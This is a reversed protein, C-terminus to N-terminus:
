VGAEEAVFRGMRGPPDALLSELRRAVTHDRLLRARGAAAIRRREDPHQLYWAVKEHLERPTRWSILEEGLAFLDGLEENHHALVFGGCSVVDFVRLTVIDLQYIRGIDVHIGDGSYIRPLKHFHGAPGRWRAGHATVARWGEDGWVHAGYRGLGAVTALRFEAAAAEGLLMVPDAFRAGPTPKLAALEPLHEAMLEPIRFVGASRRQEALVREVLAAADAPDRGARVALTTADRKYQQAEPVMSRGVFVVPADVDAHEEATLAIPRRWEPDAALPLHEARFGAARYLPVHAKRWTHITTRPVPRKPPRVPDISPDIEWVVLRLGPLHAGLEEVAEPLGPQHNVAVILEPRFSRAIRTLEAPPLRTTEWTWLGYGADTLARTLEEVVLGGDVILARRNPLITRWLLERAYRQGLVPHVVTPLQPINVLELDLFVQLQGSRLWASWDTGELFLRLQPASREWLRVNKGAELAARVGVPATAGIMLITPEDPLEPWPAATIAAADGGAELRRTLEAARARVTPLSARRLAELNRHLM